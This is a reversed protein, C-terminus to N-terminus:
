QQIVFSERSLYIVHSGEKNVAGVAVLFPYYPSLDHQNDIRLPIIEDMLFIKINQIYGDDYDGLWDAVDCKGSYRSM